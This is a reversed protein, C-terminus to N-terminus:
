YLVESGPPKEEMKTVQMNPYVYKQVYVPNKRRRNLLVYMVKHKMRRNLLVYMFRPIWVDM